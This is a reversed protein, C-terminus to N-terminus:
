ESDNKLVVTKDTLLKGIIIKKDLGYKLFNENSSMVRLLSSSIEKTSILFSTDPNAVVSYAWIQGVEKIGLSVIKSEIFFMKNSINSIGVVDPRINFNELNNIKDEVLDTQNSNNKFYNTLTQASTDFVQNDENYEEKIFKKLWLCLPKYTDQESISNTNSSTRITKKKPIIKIKTLKEESSKQFHLKVEPLNDEILDGSIRFVDENKASEQIKKLYKCGLVLNLQWEADFHKRLIKPIKYDDEMPHYPKIKGNTIKKSTKLWDDDNNFKTKLNHQLLEDFLEKKPSIRYTFKQYYEPFFGVQHERAFSSKNQNIYDSLNPDRINPHGWDFKATPINFNYRLFNDIQVPLKWNRVIQFYSRMRGHGNEGDRNLWGGASPYSCSDLLGNVFEIKYVEKEKNLDQNIEFRDFSTRGNFFTKIYNIVEDGLSNIILITLTPTALISFEFELNTKLFPIVLDKISKSFLERQFYKKKIEPNIGGSSYDCNSNKCKLTDLGSGVTKTALFGCKPCHAIGEVVKYHHPFNISVSNDLIYGKGCILGLLYYLSTSKMM